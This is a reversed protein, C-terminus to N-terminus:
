IDLIGPGRAANATGPLAASGPVTKLMKRVGPRKSSVVELATRLM